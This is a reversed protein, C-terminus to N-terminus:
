AGRAAVRAKSKLRWRGLIWGVGIGLLLVIGAAILLTQAIWKLASLEFGPYGAPPTNITSLHAARAAAGWGKSLLQQEVAERALPIFLKRSAGKTEVALALMVRFFQEEFPTPPQPAELELVNTPYGDALAATRLIFPSDSLLAARKRLGSAANIFRYGGLTRASGGLLVLEGLYVEALWQAEKLLSEEPAASILEHFRDLRAARMSFSDGAVLALAAASLSNAETAVGLVQYNIDFLPAGSSGHSGRATTEAGLTGTSVFQGRSMELAGCQPFSLMFLESTTKKGKPFVFVGPVFGEEVPRLMALDLSPVDAILQLTRNVGPHPADGIAQARELYIEPCSGGSCLSAALHSTTVVAGDNLVFGTGCARSSASRVRVVSNLAETTPQFEAAATAAILLAAIALLFTKFILRM